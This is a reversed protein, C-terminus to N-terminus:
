NTSSNKRKKKKKKIKAGESFTSVLVSDMIRTDRGDGGSGQDPGRM